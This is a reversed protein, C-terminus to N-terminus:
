FNGVLGTLVRWEPYRADAALSYYSLGTQWKLAPGALYYNVVGSGEFSNRVDTITADKHRTFQSFRLGVELQKPVVFASAQLYYSLFSNDRSEKFNQYDVEAQLAFGDVKVGLDGGLRWASEHDWEGYSGSVGVTWALNKTQYYDGEYSRDYGNGIFNAALVGLVDTYVDAHDGTYGNFIGGVVTLADCDMKLTHSATVGTGRAPSSNNSALVYPLASSAFVRGEEDISSQLGYMQKQQGARVYTNEGANLQIWAEKLWNYNNVPAASGGPTYGNLIEWYVDNAGMEVDAFAYRLYYSFAKDAINGGVMLDARAVDFSNANKIDHLDKKGVSTFSYYTALSTNLQMDFGAAPVEIKTGKDYTVRAGDSASALVPALFLAGLTLGLKNRM